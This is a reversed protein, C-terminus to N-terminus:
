QIEKLTRHKRLFGNCFRAESLVGSRPLIMM